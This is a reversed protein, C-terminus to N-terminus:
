FISHNAIRFQGGIKSVLQYSSMTLILHILSFLRPMFQRVTYSKARHIWSQMKRLWNLHLAENTCILVLLSTRSPDSEKWKRIKTEIRPRAFPKIASIYKPQSAEGEGRSCGPHKASLQHTTSLRCMPARKASRRPTYFSRSKLSWSLLPFKHNGTGLWTATATSSSNPSTGLFTVLKRRKVTTFSATPVYTITCMTPTPAKCTSRPSCRSSPVTTALLLRRSTLRMLLNKSHLYTALSHSFRSDMATSSSM